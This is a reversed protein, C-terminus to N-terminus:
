KGRPTCGGDRRPFISVTVRGARVDADTYDYAYSGRTKTVEGSNGVKMQYCALEEKEGCKVYDETLGYILYDTSILTVELGKYKLPEREYRLAYTNASTQEFRTKQGCITKPYDFDFTMSGQDNTKHSFINKFFSPIALADASAPIMTISLILPVAILISGTLFLNVKM